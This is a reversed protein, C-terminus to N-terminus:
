PTVYEFCGIAPQTAPPNPRNVGDLDKNISGIMKGANIAPSNDLLHYNSKAIDVFQPDQNNIVSIANIFAPIPDKSKIISHDLLVTASAEPKTDVFFETELGGYILTNIVELALPATQYTTQTIPLYNLAAFALNKTHDLYRDGYTAITCDYFKYRGGEYLMVNEQGCQTIRCNEVEVSSNYAVIGYGLSTHIISNTMKLMPITGGSEDPSLHITAAPIVQKQGNIIIATSAGGNKFTCYNITNNKSTSTFYLGGWQGALDIYDGIWVKPDLRDGQFIVSDTQTGNIKLTGNVFLRSNQHMYIRAGAPITLTEGEAILANSIIVYPKNTLWTQTNLTSDVIYYANQGYAIFPLDYETGNLTTILADGIVFPNDAATPDITVAVFVWLSDNAAIEIDQFATGPKGNVNLRFDSQSGQKLKLSSLKIPKSERNFIKISRTASGQATFVTDFMLTDVSYEIKGGTTLINEKKCSLTSCWFLCLISIFTIINKTSLLPYM